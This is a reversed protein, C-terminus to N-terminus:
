CKKKEMEWFETRTAAFCSLNNKTKKNFLIKM